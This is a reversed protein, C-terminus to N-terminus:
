AGLRMKPVGVVIIHTYRNPRSCALCNRSVPRAMSASVAWRIPRTDYTTSGSSIEAAASASARRIDVIGAFWSASFLNSILWANSFM